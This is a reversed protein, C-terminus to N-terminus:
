NREEMRVVHITIDQEILAEDRYIQGDHVFETDEDVILRLTGSIYNSDESLNEQLTDAVNSIENVRRDMRQVVSSGTILLQSALLLIALAVMVEALTFGNENKHM